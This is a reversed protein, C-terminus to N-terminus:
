RQVWAGSSGTRGIPASSHSCRSTASDPRTATAATPPPRISPPSTVLPFVPRAIFVMQDHKGLPIPLGPQFFTQNATERDGIANGDKIFTKNEFTLSWMSTLPNDLQRSVENLDDPITGDLDEESDPAAASESRVPSQSRVNERATAEGQGAITTLLICALLSALASRTMHM